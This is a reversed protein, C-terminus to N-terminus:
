PVTLVIPGYTGAKVTYPRIQGKTLLRLQKIAEIDNPAQFAKPDLLADLEQDSFNDFQVLRNLAIKEVAFKFTSGAPISYANADPALRQSKSLLYVMLIAILALFTLALFALMLKFTHIPDLQSFIGLSLWQKYLSWFVFAGVAGLGAVALAARWFKEM